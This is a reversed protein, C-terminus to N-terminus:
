LSWILGKKLTKIKNKPEVLIPKWSQIYLFCLVWLCQFCLRIMHLVCHWAESQFVRHAYVTNTYLQLGQLKIDSELRL